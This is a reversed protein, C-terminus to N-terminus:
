QDPQDDGTGRDGNGGGNGGRGGFGGRGGRGRGGGNNNGDQNNGGGRRGGGANGDPNGGGRNGRGGGNNNGDGFNGSNRQQPASRVQITGEGGGDPTFTFTQTRTGEAPAAGPTTFPNPGPTGGFTSRDGPGGYSGGGPGGFGGGPGGRGPGGRGGRGPGGVRAAVTDEKEGPKHAYLDKQYKIWEEPTLLGDNNLDMAIFAEVERGDKRWEYLGIQGDKDTDLREWWDPLEKPLKGYRFVVQKEEEEQQGRGRKNRGNPDMSAMMDPNGTSWPNQGGGWNPNQGPGGFGGGPGGNGMSADIQAKAGTRNVSDSMFRKYENLGMYGGSAYADFYPAIRSNQEAEAKSIRGDGDRDYRALMGKIQDDTM